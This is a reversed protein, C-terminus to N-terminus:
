GAASPKEVPKRKVLKDGSDRDLNCFEGAPGYACGMDSKSKKAAARTGAPWLKSHVGVRTQSPSPGIQHASPGRM